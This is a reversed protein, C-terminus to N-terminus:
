AQANVYNAGAILGDIVAKNRVEHVMSNLLAILEENNTVKIQTEM